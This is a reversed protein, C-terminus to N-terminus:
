FNLLLERNGQGLISAYKKNVYSQEVGAKGDKNFNRDPAEAYPPNIYM